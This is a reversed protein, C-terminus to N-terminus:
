GAAVFGAAVAAAAVSSVALEAAVYDYVAVFKVAVVVSDVPFTAAFAAVVDVAVAAVVGAVAVVVAAVAAVVAVVAAVLRAASGVVSEALSDLVLELWQEPVPLKAVALQEFEAAVAVFEAHVTALQVAVVFELQMVVAIQWRVPTAADPVVAPAALELEPWQSVSSASLWPMCCAAPGCSLTRMRRVFRGHLVCSSVDQHFHQRQQM